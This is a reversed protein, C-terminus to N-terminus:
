FGIECLNKNKNLKFLLLELTDDAVAKAKVRVWSEITSESKIPLAIAKNKNM